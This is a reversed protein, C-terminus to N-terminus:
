WCTYSHFFPKGWQKGCSCMNTSHQTTKKTNIKQGQFKFFINNVYLLKQELFKMTFLFFEAKPLTDFNAITFHNRMAVCTPLDQINKKIHSKQGQFKDCM